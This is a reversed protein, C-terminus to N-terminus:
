ANRFHRALEAYPGDPGHIGKHDLHDRAHMPTINEATNKGGFELPQVHHADYLDGEKRLTKGDQVYDESYTPWPKANIEEWQNIYENKNMVWDRRVEGYEAPSVKKWEAADTVHVESASSFQQVEDNYAECVKSIEGSTLQEVGRPEVLSPPERLNSLMEINQARLGDLSTGKIVELQDVPGFLHISSESSEVALTEPLSSELAKSASEAAASVMASIPEVM